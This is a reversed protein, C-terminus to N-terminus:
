HMVSAARKKTSNRYTQASTPLREKMCAPGEKRPAHKKRRANEKRRAHKKGGHMSM